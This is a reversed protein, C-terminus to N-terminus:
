ASEENWQDIAGQRTTHLLTQPRECYVTMCIVRWGHPGDGGIISPAWGCHPCPKVQERKGAKHTM